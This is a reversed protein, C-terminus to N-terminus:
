LRKAHNLGGWLIKTFVKFLVVTKFILKMLFTLPKLVIVSFYYLINM